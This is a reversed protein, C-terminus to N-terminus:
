KEAIGYVIYKWHEPCIYNFILQDIRALINRQWESRGFAALMGATEYKYSKFRFLFQRLEDISIYRWTRGWRVFKRRLFQHV